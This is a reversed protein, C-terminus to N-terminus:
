FPSLTFGIRRGFFVIAIWTLLSILGAFKAIAPVHQAEDWETLRRRGVVHFFVMNLFVLVLLAMKVQFDPNKAYGTANSAFLAAGSVAAMLFAAWVIPLAQKELVRVSPTHARVGLLRLDVISILGVVLSIALVHICELWPFASESQRIADSLPWDYIAQLFPQISM